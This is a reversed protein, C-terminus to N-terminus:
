RPKRVSPASKRVSAPRRPLPTSRGGSGGARYPARKRPLSAVYCGGAMQHHMRVPKAPAPVYAEPSKLPAAPKSGKAPKAASPKYSKSM